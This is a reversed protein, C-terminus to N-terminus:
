PLLAEYGEGRRFIGEELNTYQNPVAGVIVTEALNVDVGVRSAASFGPLLVNIDVQIHMMIQHRTQNIGASTFVNEYNATATGVPVIRVPINPGRGSLLDGSLMNGLPIGLESTGIGEINELVSTLIDTRLRNIAAIDTKLATIRGEMDKEFHIINDYSVVGANIKEDVADNIAKAALYHVRATALQLVVPRIHRDIWIFTLSFALAAVVALAAVRRWKGRGSQAPRRIGAPRRRGRGMGMRLRYFFGRLRISRRM